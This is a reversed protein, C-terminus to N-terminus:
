SFYGVRPGTNATHLKVWVPRRGICRLKFLELSRLSLQASRERAQQQHHLSIWFQLGILVKETQLRLQFSRLVPDRDLAPVEIIGHLIVVHCHTTERCVQNRSHEAKRRSWKECCLCACFFRRRHLKIKAGCRRGGRIQILAGRRRRRSGRRWLTISLRATTAPPGAVDFGPSPSDEAVWCGVRRGSRVKRALCTARNTAANKANSAVFDWAASTM